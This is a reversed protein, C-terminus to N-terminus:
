QYVIVDGEQVSSVAKGIAHIWETHYEPQGEFLHLSKKYGDALKQCTLWDMHGENDAYNLLWYFPHDKGVEWFEGSTRGTLDALWNRHNNHASYPCDFVWERQTFTYYGEKLRSHEAFDSINCLWVTTQAPADSANTTLFKVGRCLEISLGM